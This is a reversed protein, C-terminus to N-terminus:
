TGVEVVGAHPGAALLDRVLRVLRTPYVVVASAELEDLRWWRHELMSRRELDTFGATEVVLDDVRALFFTEEQRYDVSEFRFHATRRWIAPGLVASRCGTEEALERLAAQELSEGAELGGGPTFWFDEAPDHPDIGRFLLVRDSRDLVLVRAAHRLVPASPATM